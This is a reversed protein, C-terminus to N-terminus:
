SSLCAALPQSSISIDRIRWKNGGLLLPVFLTSDSTTAPLYEKSNSPQPQPSTSAALFYTSFRPFAKWASAPYTVALWANITLARSVAMERTGLGSEVTADVIEGM